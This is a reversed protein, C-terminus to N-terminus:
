MSRVKDIVANPPNTPTVANGSYFSGVEVLLARFDLLDLRVAGEPVGMADLDTTEVMGIFEALDAWRQVITDMQTAAAQIKRYFDDKSPLQLETLAM